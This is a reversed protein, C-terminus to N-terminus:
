AITIIGQNSRNLCLYFKSPGSGHPSFLYNFVHELGYEKTVWDFLESVGGAYVRTIRSIHDWAHSVKTLNKIFMM